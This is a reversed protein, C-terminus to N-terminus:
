CRSTCVSMGAAIAKAIPHASHADVSAAYTRLTEEDTGDDMVLTETVGLPRRDAHWDKDSIVAQLNRAGEFAVRNRILLRTKRRWRPPSLWSWRCPSVSRM